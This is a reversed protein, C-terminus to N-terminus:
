VNRLRRGIGWVNCVFLVAWIMLQMCFPEWFCGYGGIDARLLYIPNWKSGSLAQWLFQYLIFTGIFAVYRNLTCVSLLLCVNGWVMGFLFGLFLKLLLVLKGGWVFTVRNWVTARYFESVNERTTPVGGLVAVFFILGFALFMM